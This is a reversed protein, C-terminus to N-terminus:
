YSLSEVEYKEQKGSIEESREERRLCEHGPLSISREPERAQPCNTSGTIESRKLRLLTTPGKKVIKSSIM